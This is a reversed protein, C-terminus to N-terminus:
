APAAPVGLLDVVLRCAEELDSFCLRFCECGAALQGLAEAGAIQHGILNVANLALTFFAETETLPSLTTGGGSDFCPVVVFAAECPVGVRHATEGGVPVQWERAAPDGPEFVGDALPALETLAAFSGAKLTIPKPYPLLRGTALEFAVLEDSLYGLGARALGATLTSKGSGSPGPLLVGRGAAEVGGAHFLLHQDSTEAAARNVDWVLWGIADACTLGARVLEGDRALDLTGSAVSTLTYHHPADSAAGEQEGPDCLASLLAEIRRGLAGDECCVVFRYSLARLNPTRHAWGQDPLVTLDPHGHEARRGHSGEGPGRVQTDPQGLPADGM